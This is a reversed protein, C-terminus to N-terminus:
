GRASACAYLRSGACRPPRPFPGGALLMKAGRQAEAETRGPRRAVRATATKVKGVNKQMKGHLFRCIRGPAPRSVAARAREAFFNAPHKLFKRLNISLRFPITYFPRMNLFPPCGLHCSRHQIISRGFHIGLGGLAGRFKTRGRSRTRHMSQDYVNSQCHRNKYIDGQDNYAKGGYKSNAQEDDKSKYLDDTNLVAFVGFSRQM